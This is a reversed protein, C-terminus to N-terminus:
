IKAGQFKLVLLYKLIFVIKSMDLISYLLRTMLMLRYIDKM